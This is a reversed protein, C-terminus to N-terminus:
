DEITYMAYKLQRQKLSRRSSVPDSSAKIGKLVPILKAYAQARKTYGEYAGSEVEKDNFTNFVAELLQGFQGTAAMPNKVTEIAAYAGSPGFALTTLELYTKNAAYLMYPTIGEEDDGFLNELISMSIFLLVTMKFEINFRKIAAQHHKPLAKFVAPDNYYKIFNMDSKWGETLLKGAARWYGIEKKGLEYNTNDSRLRRSLGTVLWSKHTFLLQVLANRNAATKDTPSLSGEFTGVQRKVIMSFKAMNTRHQESTAGLKKGNLLYEHIPKGQEYNADGPKVIVNKHLRYHFMATMAVTAKISYSGLQFGVMSPGDNLIRLAKNKNLDKFIEGGTGFLGLDQLVRTLKAKKNKEGIEAVAAPYMKALMKTAFRQAAPSSHERIYSDLKQFVKASLYGQIQTFFAGALNNATVYAKFKSLLKSASYKGGIEHLEETSEGYIRMDILTRMKFYDNTEFGRKIHQKDILKSNGFLSLMGEFVSAEKSMIEYNESMKKFAILSRLADNTITNPNELPKTYYRPVMRESSGDPRSGIAAHFGEDNMTALSIDEIFTDKITRFTKENTRTVIDLMSASLQPALGKYVLGIQNYMTNMNNEVIIAFKQQNPTLNKFALDTPRIFKGTFNKGKREFLFDTNTIGLDEAQDMLNRGYEVTHLEVKNFLKTIMFHMVRAIPNASDAGSMLWKNIFGSEVSIQKFQNLVEQVDDQESIEPTIKKIVAKHTFEMHLEEMDAFIHELDKLKTRMEGDKFVDKLERVYTTYYAFYRDLEGIEKFTLSDRDQLQGLMVQTESLLEEIFFTLADLTGDVEGGVEVLKNMEFIRAILTNAEAKKGTRKLVSIYQNLKERIEVIIDNSSDFFVDGTPVYNFDGQEGKAVFRSIEEAVNRFEPRFFSKLKNIIANIIGKFGKPYTNSEIAQGVYKGLIERRVKAEVEAETLSEKFAKYKGRYHEAHTKYLDSKDITALAKDVMRQNTFFDVAMHGVEEALTKGVKGNETLAIIRLSTDALGKVGQIGNNRYGINTLYSDMAQVNVGTSQIFSKVKGMVTSYSSEAEAKLKRSVTDPGQKTVIVKGSTNESVTFTDKLGKVIDADYELEKSFESIRDGPVKNFLKNLTSYESLVKRPYLSTGDSFKDNTIIPEGKANVEIDTKSYAHKFVMDAEIESGTFKEIKNYLKSENGDPTLYKKEGNVMKIQCGM